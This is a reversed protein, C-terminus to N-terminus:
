GQQRIELWRGVGLLVGAYFIGQGLGDLGGFLRDAFEPLGLPGGDQALVYLYRLSFLGLVVWAAITVIKGLNVPKRPAAAYGPGPYAPPVPQMPQSYGRQQLYPDQGYPDHPPQQESVAESECM